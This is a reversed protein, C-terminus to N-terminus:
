RDRNRERREFERTIDEWQRDIDRREERMRYDRDARQREQRYEDFQYNLRNLQDTLSEANCFVPFFLMLVIAHIIHKM